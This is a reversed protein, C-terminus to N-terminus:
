EKKKEAKIFLEELEEAFDAMNEVWDYEDSPEYFGEKASKILELDSTVIKSSLCELGLDSGVYTCAGNKADEENKALVLMKGVNVEFVPM